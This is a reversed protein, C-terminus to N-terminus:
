PKAVTFPITYKTTEWALTIVGGGAAADAGVTMTFEDVQVPLDDKKMDIRALEQKQLDASYPIGWQGLAKNIIFKSAGNETPLMDLSYAGAPVLTDGFMLPQQTIMLTAEDSGMRWVKDWPVLTGWVKRITTPAKPDKSYPRGYVITM